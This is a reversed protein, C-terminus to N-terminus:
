KVHSKEKVDGQTEAQATTEDIKLETVLKGTNPDRVTQAVPAEPKNETENHKKM